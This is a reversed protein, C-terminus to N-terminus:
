ALHLHHAFTFRLFPITRYRSTVCANFYLFVIGLAGFPLAIGYCPTYLGEVTFSCYGWLGSPADNWLLPCLGKIAHVGVSAGFPRWEMVLPTAGRCHVFLIGFGWLPTMWLSPCLGKIAHVGVSAGFPRFIVRGHVM